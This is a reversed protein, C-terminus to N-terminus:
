LIYSSEPVSVILNVDLGWRWHSLCVFVIFCGFQSKAVREWFLTVWVKSLIYDVLFFMLYHFVVYGNIFPVM